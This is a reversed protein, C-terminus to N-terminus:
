PYKGCWQDNQVPLIDSRACRNGFSFFSRAVRGSGGSGGSSSGEVEQFCSLDHRLMEQVPLHHQRDNSSDMSFTPQVYFQKDKGMVNICENEM